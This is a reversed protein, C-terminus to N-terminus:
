NSDGLSAVKHLFDFTVIEGRVANAKLRRVYDHQYKNYKEMREAFDPDGELNEFFQGKITSM